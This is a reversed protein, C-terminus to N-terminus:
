LCSDGFSLQKHELRPKHGPYHWSFENKQPRRQVSTKYREDFIARQMVYNFTACFCKVSTNFTAYFHQFNCLLLPRQMSTNVMAYFHQLQMSTIFMAHFHQVSCPLIACHMSTNGTAYFYQVNWSGSFWRQTPVSELTVHGEASWLCFHPRLASYIRMERILLGDLNDNLKNVAIPLCWMLM